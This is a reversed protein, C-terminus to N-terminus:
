HVQRLAVTVRPQTGGEGSSRLARCRLRPLPRTAGSRRRDWRTALDPFERLIARREAELLLLREQVLALLASRTSRDM